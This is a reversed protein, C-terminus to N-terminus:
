SALYLAVLLSLGVAQWLIGEPIVWLAAWGLWTAVPIMLLLLARRHRRYFTHRADLENASSAAFTDVTRDIVYILWCAVALGADLMPTLRIGHAQALVHQWLVAVLPAELSLM